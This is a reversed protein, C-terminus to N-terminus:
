KQSVRKANKQERRQNAFAMAEFDRVSKEVPAGRDRQHVARRINMLGHMEALFSEATNM